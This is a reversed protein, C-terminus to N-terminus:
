MKVYIQEKNQVAYTIKHEDIKWVIRTKLTM